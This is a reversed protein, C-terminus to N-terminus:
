SLSILHFSIKSQIAIWRASAALVVPRLPGLSPVAGVRRLTHRDLLQVTGTSKQSVLLFHNTCSISNATGEYSQDGLTALPTVQPFHVSSFHASCDGSILLPRIMHRRGGGGNSNNKDTALLLYVVVPGASSSSSTTSDEGGSKEYFCLDICNLDSGNSAYILDTSCEAHNLGLTRWIRLGSKGGVFILSCGEHKTKLLKCFSPHFLENKATTNSYSNTPPSSINNAVDSDKVSSVNEALMNTLHQGVDTFHQGVRLNSLRISSVKQIWNQSRGLIDPASFQSQPKAKTRKTSAM